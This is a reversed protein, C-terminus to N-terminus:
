LPLKNINQIKNKINSIMNSINTKTKRMGCHAIENRLQSIANWIPQIQLILNDIENKRENLEWAIKDRQNIDLWNETTKRKLLVYSILWERTLTIAQMYLDKEILFNIIKRQIELNEKTLEDPKTYAFMEINQRLLSFIVYFPKAWLKIESEAEKLAKSLKTAIDMVELPQALWIAYSFKNLLSSIKKLAKPMNKFNSSKKKWLKSQIESLLDSLLNANATDLFFKTGVTWDQIKLFQTLDYIPTINREQDKAEFAGYLIKNVRINKSARIYSIVGTIFLPLYRFSHTIDIILEDEESLTNSIEEFIQWLEEEKVGSPIEQIKIECINGINEKIEEIFSKGTAKHQAIKSEKTVILILKNPKLLNCLAIPLLHTQYVGFGELSYNTTQYNGKGLFSLLSLGM